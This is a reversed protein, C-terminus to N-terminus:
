RSELHHPREIRGLPRLGSSSRETLRSAPVLLYASPDQRARKPSVWTSQVALMSVETGLQIFFLPLPHIVASYPM